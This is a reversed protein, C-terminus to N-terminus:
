DDYGGDEKQDWKLINDNVWRTDLLGSLRIAALFAMGRMRPDAHLDEVTPLGRGRLWHNVCSRRFDEDYGSGEFDDGIFGGCAETEDWGKSRHRKVATYYFWVQEREIRELQEKKQKLILNRNMDPNADPDYTDGLLDDFSWEQDFEKLISVHGAAELLYFIRGTVTTEVVHRYTEPLVGAMYSLEGKLRYQFHEQMKKRVLTKLDVVTRWNYNVNREHERM